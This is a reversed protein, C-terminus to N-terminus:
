ESTSLEIRFVKDEEDKMFVEGNQRYLTREASLSFLEESAPYFLVSRDRDCYDLVFLKLCPLSNMNKCISILALLRTESYCCVQRFAGSLPMGFGSRCETRLHPPLTWSARHELRHDETIKMVDLVDHKSVIFLFKSGPSSERFWFSHLCLRPDNSKLIGSISRKLLKKTGKPSFALVLLKVTNVRLIIINEHKGTVYADNIALIKGEQGPLDRSLEFGNNNSTSVYGSDEVKFFNIRFSYVRRDGRKEFVKTLYMLFEGRFARKVAIVEMQNGNTQWFPDIVVQGKAGGHGSKLSSDEKIYIKSHNFIPGEQDGERWPKPTVAFVWGKCEVVKLRVLLQTFIRLFILFNKLLNCKFPFPIRKAPKGNLDKLFVQRSEKRLVVEENSYRRFCGYMTHEAKREEPTLKEIKAQTFEQPKKGGPARKPHMKEILFLKM